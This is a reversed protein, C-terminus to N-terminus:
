FPKFVVCLAEIGELADIFALAEFFRYGLLM